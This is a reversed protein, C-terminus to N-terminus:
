LPFGMSNRLVPMVSRELLLDEDRAAISRASMEALTAILDDDGLFPEMTSVRARQIRIQESVGDSPVSSFTFGDGDIRGDLVVVRRATKSDKQEYNAM